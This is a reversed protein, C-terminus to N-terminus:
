VVWRLFSPSVDGPLVAERAAAGTRRETEDLGPESTRASLLSISLSLSYKPKAGPKQKLPADKIRLLEWLTSGRRAFFLFTLVPTLNCADLVLCPLVSIYKVPSLGFEKCRKQLIPKKKKQIISNYCFEKRKEVISSALDLEGLLYKVCAIAVVYRGREFTRLSM